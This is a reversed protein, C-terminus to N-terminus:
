IQWFHKKLALRVPILQTPQYVFNGHRFRSLLCAAPRKLLEKVSALVRLVAYATVFEDESLVETTGAAEFAGLNQVAVQRLLKQKNSRGPLPASYKSWSTRRDKLRDRHTDTQGRLPPAVTKFTPPPVFEALSALLFNKQRGVKQGTPSLINSLYSLWGLEYTQPTSM